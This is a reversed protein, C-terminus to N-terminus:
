STRSVSLHQKIIGAQADGVKKYLDPLNKLREELKAIEDTHDKGDANFQLDAIQNELKLQEAKLQTALKYENNLEAAQEDTKGLLDLQQQLDATGQDFRV